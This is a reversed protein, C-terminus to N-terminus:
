ENFVAVTHTSKGSAAVVLKGSSIEVTGKVRGHTSDYEFM